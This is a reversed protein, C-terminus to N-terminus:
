RDLMTKLPTRIVLPTLISRLFALLAPFCVQLKAPTSMTLFQGRESGKRPPQNLRILHKM